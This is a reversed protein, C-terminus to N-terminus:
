KWDEQQEAEYEQLYQWEASTREDGYKKQIAIYRAKDYPPKGNRKILGIIDAPTPFEQSRELWVEFAKIVKDAPQNDLIQHFLQIVVKTNEVGKGYLKQLAFCGGLM